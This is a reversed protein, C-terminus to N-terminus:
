CGMLANQIATVIEDVTVNRDGNADANPCNDVSQSGLAINVMTVIEDVTVSGSNDCDGVCAQSRTPTPMPTAVPTPTPPAVGRVDVAGTMMSLESGVRLAL